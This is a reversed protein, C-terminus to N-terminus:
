PSETNTIGLLEAAEKICGAVYSRVNEPMQDFVDMTQQLTQLADDTREALAYIRCLEGLLYSKGMPEKIVDYFHYANEYHKISVQYNRQKRELDGMSSLVNALGLNDQEERYL